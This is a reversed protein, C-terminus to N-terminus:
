KAIGVSVQDKTFVEDDQQCHIDQPEPEDAGIIVLLAAVVALGFCAVLKQHDPDDTYHQVPTTQKVSNIKEVCENIKDLAKSTVRKNDAVPDGVVPTLRAATTVATKVSEFSEKAAADKSNVSGRFCIDLGSLSRCLTDFM